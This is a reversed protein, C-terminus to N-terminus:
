DDAGLELDDLAADTQPLGALREAKRRKKEAEKWGPPRRGAQWDPRPFSHPRRPEGPVGYSGKLHCTCDCLGWDCHKHGETSLLRCWRGTTVETKTMM